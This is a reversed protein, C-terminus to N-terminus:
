VVLEKKRSIGLLYDTSVNLAIALGALAKASPTIANFRYEWLMSRSIGARKCIDNLDLGSEWIADEIKQNLDLIRQTKRM